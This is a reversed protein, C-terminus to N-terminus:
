QQAGQDQDLDGAVKVRIRVAGGPMYALPTEEVDIIEVTGPKAGAALAKDMANQKADALAKERGVDEYAFVRDTEGGIQAISAGVANAVSAYEPIITESASPIDQNILASGGGVLVLPPAEAGTRMRDVSHELMSHIEAIGQDIVEAPIDMDKVTGMKAYGAKVALDSACLTKGGFCLGEKHLKFGLSEPGVTVAGKASRVLSGGGLGIALVDPMRFNTRVGGIDVSLSSERPFGELLVGVDTTTGGIDAVIANQLESLYAAGRMSNTPGSAFTLVPYRRVQEAGMLTGDNQSFYFPAAIGLKGLAKEISDVVTGALATLSANMVAANERELLGMRGIESSITIRADPAEAQVIDQARLEMEANVPSFIGAIAIAELGQKRCAQAAEAVAKEDLPDAVEGDFRYGGKVMFVADGVCKTLDAPWDTLPPIGRASPLALRVVGVKLLHKREVLANTFQTTGIMVTDIAKTDISGQRLVEGVVQIVGDTVNATTPSKASCVISRGDMIVADTNTGGVDVGIRM